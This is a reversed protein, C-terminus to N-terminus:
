ALKYGMSPILFPRVLTRLREMSGSPIYVVFHSKHRQIHTVISLKAFARKIIRQENLSYSQTNLRLANCDNRRYGDDMIWVALMQPNIIKSVIEPVYKRKGRYFLQVFKELLPSTHTRLICHAYIHKYRPDFREKVSISPHLSSLADAMWRVYAEQATSHDVVLRAYVGNRELFGDGLLTGFIINQQQSGVTNDMHGSNM